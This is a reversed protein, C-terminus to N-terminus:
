VNAPWRFFSSLTIDDVKTLGNAEMISAADKLIHNHFEVAHRIRYVLYENSGNGNPKIIKNGPLESWVADAGLCLLKLLDEGSHINAAAIIKIKKDLEYVELTKSAFVILDFLSRPNSVRRPSPFGNQQAPAIIMFQPNFKVKKIAYCINYLENKNEIRLKIGVPKGGSLHYLRELFLVMGEADSFVSYGLAPIVTKNKTAPVYNATVSILDYFPRRPTSLDLEIMKIRADCALEKFKSADFGGKGTQCGVYEPGVHFVQDGQVLDYLNGNECYVTGRAFGNDATSRVMRNRTRINFVSTKYAQPDDINGVTITLDNKKITIAPPFPVTSRKAQLRIDIQHKGAFYEPHRGPKKQRAQYLFFILLPLLIIALWSLNHGAQAAKITFLHLLIFLTLLTAKLLLIQNRLM